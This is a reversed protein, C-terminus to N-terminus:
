SIRLNWNIDEYIKDSSLMNRLITYTKSSPYIEVITTAKITEYENILSIIDEETAALTEEVGAIIALKARAWLVFERMEPQEAEDIATELQDQVLETFHDYDM